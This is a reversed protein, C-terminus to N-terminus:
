GHLPARDYNANPCQLTGTLRHSLVVPVPQGLMNELDHRLIFANDFGDAFASKEGAMSSRTVRQSKLSQYHVISAQKSHDALIIIYGVKSSIDENNAQSVDTYVLMRLSSLNLKAFKLDIDPAKRLNTVVNNFAIIASFDFSKPTVKAAQSVACTIDPRTHTAWAIQARLSRNASYDVTALLLILRCAHQAQSLTRIGKTEDTRLGLFEVNGTDPAKVDFAAETM